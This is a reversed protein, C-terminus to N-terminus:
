GDDDIADWGGILRVTDDDLEADSGVARLTGDDLKVYGGPIGRQRDLHAQVAAPLEKDSMSFAGDLRVHGAIEGTM